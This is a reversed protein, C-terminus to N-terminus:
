IVPDAAPLYHPLIFVPCASGVVGEKIIEDFPVLYLHYTHHFNNRHPTGACNDYRSTLLFMLFLFVVILFEVHVSKLLDFGWDQFLKIDRCELEMLIDVYLVPNVPSM